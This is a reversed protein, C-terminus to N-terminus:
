VSASVRGDKEGREGPYVAQDERVGEIVCECESKWGEREIRRPLCGQRRESRRDCVGV